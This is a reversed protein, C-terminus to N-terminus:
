EEIIKNALNFNYYDTDDTVERIIDVFPPVAFMQNESDLEVELIMIRQEPFVDLEFKKRLYTFEFRKKFIEAQGFKDKLKNFTDVDIKAETEERTMKREGVKSTLWYEHNDGHTIHRIRSEHRNLDPAAVKPVGELDLDNIAEVDLYVSHIDLLKLEVEALDADRVLFKREIEYKSKPKVTMITRDSNEHVM